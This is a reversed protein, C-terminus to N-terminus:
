GKKLFDLGRQREEEIRKNVVDYDVKFICDREYIEKVDNICQYSTIAHTEHVLKQHFMLDQQLNDTTDHQKYETYECDTTIRNTGNTRYGCVFPGIQM